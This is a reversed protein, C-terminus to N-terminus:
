ITNQKLRILAIGLLINKIINLLAHMYKWLVLFLDPKLEILQDRFLFLLVNGAGYVLFASNLWFYDSDTIHMAPSLKLLMYLGIVSLCIYSFHFFSAGVMNFRQLGLSNTHIVFVTSPILILVSFIASRRSFLIPKYISCIAVFEILVFVNATLKVPFDPILRRGISICLDFLICVLVYRWIANRKNIGTFFPFFPSVISLLTVIM